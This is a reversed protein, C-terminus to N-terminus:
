KKTCKIQGKLELKEGSNLVSLGQKNQFCNINGTMPEIAIANREPPIYLQLFSHKEWSIELQYHDDELLVVQIDNPELLFCDDLNQANLSFKSPFDSLHGTPIQNSNLEIKKASPISIKWSELDSNLKFYPHWGLAIPMKNEALISFHFHFSHDKFFYKAFSQFAFPYYSEEAQYHYFYEGEAQKKFELARHFGHLRNNKSVEDIPFQYTQNEFIYTGKALRNPFPLLIASKSGKHLKLKEQNEYGAIVSIQEDDLQFILEQIEAGKEIILCSHGQNNIQQGDFILKNSSEM